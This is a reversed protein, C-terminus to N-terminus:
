SRDGSLADDIESLLESIEYLMVEEESPIPISHSPIPISHPMAQLVDNEGSPPPTWEKGAFLLAYTKPRGDPDTAEILHRKELVKLAKNVTVRHYGTLDALSSTDDLWPKM